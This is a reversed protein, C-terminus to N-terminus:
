LKDLFVLKKRSTYLLVFTLWVQLNSNFRLPRCKQSTMNCLGRCNWVQCDRDHLCHQDSMKRVLASHFHLSDIDLLKLHNNDDLGFNDAKVDCMHLREFYADEMQQVLDLLKVAISVQSSWTIAVDSLRLPVHEMFYFQGCSGRLSPAINGIPHLLMFMYESQFALGIVNRLFDVNEHKLHKDEEITWFLQLLDKMNGIYKSKTHRNVLTKLETLFVNVFDDRKTSYLNNVIQDTFRTRKMVLQAPSPTISNDWSMFFVDKEGGNTCFSYQLDLSECLPLCLNGFAKKNLADLCQSFILM